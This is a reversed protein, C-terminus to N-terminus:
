NQCTFGLKHKEGNEGRNMMIEVDKITNKNRQLLIEVM